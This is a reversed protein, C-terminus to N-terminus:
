VDGVRAAHVSLKLIRWVLDAFSMGTARAAMPV